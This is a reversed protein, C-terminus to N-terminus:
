RFAKLETLTSILTVLCDYACVIMWVCVCVETYVCVDVCAYRDIYMTTTSVFKALKASIKYRNWPNEQTFKHVWDCIDISYM